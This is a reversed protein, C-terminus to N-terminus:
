QFLSKLGTTFLAHVVIEVMEVVFTQAKSIFVSHIDREREINM